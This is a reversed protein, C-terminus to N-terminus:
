EWNKIFPGVKRKIENYEKETILLLTENPFHKAFRKLKTKSKADMWGKVEHFVISNDNEIVEFDPTYETSGRVVPFRFTRPEYRWSQIKLQSVLFNLYRAYNAEWGSRVYVGIDERFGGKCRSYANASLTVPGATGYKNIRTQIAKNTSDTKQKQSATERWRKINEAMIAKAEKTHQKGLMGKPHPNNKLWEKRIISQAKVRDAKSQYQNAPPVWWTRHVDSMGISKAFESLSSRKIGTINELKALELKGGIREEYWQKIIAKNEDSIGRHIVVLGLKFCKGRVSNITRGLRLGIDRHLLTSYNEKLFEIECETWENM